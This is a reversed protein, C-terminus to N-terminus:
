YSHSKWQIIAPAACAMMPRCQAQAVEPPCNLAAEIQHHMQAQVARAVVVAAPHAAAAAVARRQAVIVNAIKVAQKVMRFQRPSPSRLM